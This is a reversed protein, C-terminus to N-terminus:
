IYFLGDKSTKAQNTFKTLNKSLALIEDLDIGFVSYVHRKSHIIYLALSYMAYLLLFQCWGGFNDVGGRVGENPGSHMSISM